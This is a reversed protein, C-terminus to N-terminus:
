VIPKVPEPHPGDHRDPHQGPPLRWKIVRAPIGVAVAGAPIDKTVVSSAGIVAGRGIRVGKTVTVSRGLWVDDEIVIPASTKGQQRIPLIPDAFAHDNDRISCYEGILCNEGITIADAAEVFSGQNISTGKGVTLRAGRASGMVVMPGLLAGDGIRVDGGFSRVIIRGEIRVRGEFTWALGLVLKRLGSMVRRTAISGSRLAAKGAKSPM